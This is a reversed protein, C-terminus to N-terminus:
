AAGGEFLVVRWLEARIACEVARAEDLIVPEPIGHRRMTEMQQDLLRQLHAEGKDQRMECMRRAHRRIFDRNRVRPFPVVRATM